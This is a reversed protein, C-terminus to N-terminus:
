ASVRPIRRTRRSPTEPLITLLRKQIEAFLDKLLLSMGDVVRPLRSLLPVAICLSRSLPAHRIRIVRLATRSEGLMASAPIITAGLNAAVMSKMAEVSSLEFVVVPDIGSREFFANLRMRTSTSRDYLILPLERIAGADIFPRSGRANSAHVVVVLEETLVPETRLESASLPANVIGMDMTNARLAEVIQPTTANVIDVKVKPYSAHFRSLAPPLMSTLQHGGIGIRIEGAPERSLDSIETRAIQTQRLILDVHGKLIRGAETMLVKRNRLRVFLPEGLEEELSQIQQSISPQALYLKKAAGTFRGTEVIAAFIEFQRLTM